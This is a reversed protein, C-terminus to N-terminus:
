AGGLPWPWGYSVNAPVGGARRRIARAGKDRAMEQSLADEYLRLEEAYDLQKLQKWRWLLSLTLLREDLRFQDDDRTINAKPAGNASRFINSSVYFFSAERGEGLPPRFQFQGDLIMWGGPTLNFGISTIREWEDLSAIHRFAMNPWEPSTVGTAMVMRDYDAPLPYAGAGSGAIGHRRILAQWDQAKAIDTAAEQALAVMEVCIEEQSSVVAAPRRGVLRAIASQSATLISM